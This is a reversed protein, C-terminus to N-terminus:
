KMNKWFLFTKQINEDPNYCNLYQYYNIKGWLYKETEDFNFDINKLPFELLIDTMENFELQSFWTDSFNELNQNESINKTELNIRLQKRALSENVLLDNGDISIGTPYKLNNAIIELTNFKEDSIKGTWQTFYPFLQTNRKTNNEYFTVESLYNGSGSFHPSINDISIEYKEWTNLPFSISGTYKMISGTQSSICSTELKEVEYQPNVNYTTSNTCWLIVGNSIISSSNSFDSFFYELKGNEIRTYDENQIFINGSFNFDDTNIPGNVDMNAWTFSVELRNFNWLNTDPSFDINLQPNDSFVESSYKLIEWKGSNAIYLSEDKYALGTPEVLGDFHDLVLSVIGEKYFIIRHNLTDSLFFGWEANVIWTPSNLLIDTANAGNEFTNWFTEGWMIKTTGQMVHHNKTSVTFVWADSIQTQSFDDLFDEWIEEYPIFNKWILHKTTPNQSDIPCYVGNQDVSWLYWFGWTNFNQKMRFLVWSSSSFIKEWSVNNFNEYIQSINEWFHTTQSIIKEQKLINQVWSSLLIGISVMLVMSISISVILEVLSFAKKQM